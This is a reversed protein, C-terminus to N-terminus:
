LVHADFKVGGLALGVDELPPQTELHRRLKVKARCGGFLVRALGASFVTKHSHAEQTLPQVHQAQGRHSTAHPDVDAKALGIGTLCSVVFL